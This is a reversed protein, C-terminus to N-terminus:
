ARYVTALAEKRRMRRGQALSRELVEAAIASHAAVMVRAAEEAEFADKRVSAATRVSEAAGLQPPRLDEALRRCYGPWSPAVM